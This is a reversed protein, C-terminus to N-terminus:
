KTYSRFHPRDRDRDRGGPPGMRDKDRSYYSPGGRGRSMGGRSDSMGGGVSQSFFKFLRGQGMYITTNAQCSYM